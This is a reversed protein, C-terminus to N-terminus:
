SQPTYEPQPTNLSASDTRAGPQHYVGDQPGKEALADLEGIRCDERAGTVAMPTELEVGEVVHQSSWEEM